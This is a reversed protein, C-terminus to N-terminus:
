TSAQDTLVTGLAVDVDLRTDLFSQGHGEVEWVDRQREWAPPNWKAGSM